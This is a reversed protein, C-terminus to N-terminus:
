MQEIRQVSGFRWLALVFMLLAIGAVVVLSLNANFDTNSRYALGYFAQLAYSSPLVRGLWVFVEPLMTAPFMIGSFLLSPLFVIMCLMTAYSKGRAVVGILLGIGISALLFVVNNLDRIQELLIRRQQSFIEEFDPSARQQLIRDKIEELSFGLSRLFLIQQLRFVDDRTYTRRGGESLTSKLLGINDYYQLTRVTVGADQALQGVMFVDGESHKM